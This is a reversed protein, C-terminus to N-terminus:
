NVKRLSGNKQRQYKKGYSDTVIGDKEPMSRGSSKFKDLKFEIAGACIGMSQLVLASVLLPSIRM